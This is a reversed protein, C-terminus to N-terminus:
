VTEEVLDPHNVVIQLLKKVAGPVPFRGQEWDRLTGVPTELWIALAPQTFGMKRRAAKLLIQEPTNVRGAGTRSEEIAEALGPLEQGADKEIAEVMSEISLKKPM